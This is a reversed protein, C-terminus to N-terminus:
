STQTPRLPRLYGYTHHGTFGRRAYAELAVQNSQEVQVYASRAGRGAAWGGLAETIMSMLGQGRVNPATWLAAFGTWSGEVHAKGIAVTEGNESVTAYAQPGVGTLMRAVIATDVDTPRTRLYSQLWPTSLQESVSVQERQHPNAGVVDILRGAMIATASHTDVWGHDRFAQQEPSDDITQVLPAIHHRDAYRVVADAAQEFALGPDGAALCSNARATFGGASRLVWDGLAEQDAVWGRVAIRQLEAPPTSQPNRGRSVLALRRAALVTARDITVRQRNKDTVVVTDATLETVLGLVDTASTDPLRHRIVVREGLRLAPTVRDIIDM